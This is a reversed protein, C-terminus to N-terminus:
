IFYYTYVKSNGDVNTKMMYELITEESTKDSENSTKNMSESNEQEMESPLSINLDSTGELEDNLTISKMFQEEPTDMPENMMAKDQFVM